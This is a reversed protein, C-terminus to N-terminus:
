YSGSVFDKSYTSQRFFTNMQWSDLHHFGGSKKKNENERQGTKWQCYSRALLLNYMFFLNNNLKQDLSSIFVRYVIVKGYDLHETVFRLHIPVTKKM